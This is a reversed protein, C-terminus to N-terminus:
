LEKFCNFLLAVQHAKISERTIGFSLVTALCQGSLILGSGFSAVKTDFRELIVLPPLSM